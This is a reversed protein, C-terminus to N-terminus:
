SFKWLKFKRESYNDKGSRTNRGFQIRQNIDTLFDPYTPLLVLRFYEHSADLDKWDLAGIFEFWIVIGTLHRFHKVTNPLCTGLAVVLPNGFYISVLLPRNYNYKTVLM